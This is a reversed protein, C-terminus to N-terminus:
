PAPAPEPVPDPGVPISAELKFGSGRESEIALTGGFAATRERMGVLGLGTRPKSLDAGRGDDAITVAIREPAGGDQLTAIRIEVRRASAHRAVNTMAEQVLRYLALARVGDLRSLDGDISLQIDTTDLRQRWDGVCHELAAAVGLDDLGVPRLERILGGVVAYVRDINGIMGLVVARADESIEGERIAVADLKIANIYQGLEDHLDRALAKREYEQMDLYRQALRRNEAFAEALRAETVRRLTLERTAELYRRLSFWVLCGAVVLLIGPLEDLQLNEHERMWGTMMESLNLRVCAIAAAASVLVIVVLDRRVSNKRENQVTARATLDPPLM